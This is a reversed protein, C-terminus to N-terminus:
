GRAVHKCLTQTHKRLVLVLASLVHLDTQRLLSCVSCGMRMKGVAKNAFKRAFSRNDLFDLVWTAQEYPSGVLRSGAICMCSALTGCFAARRTYAKVVVLIIAFVEQSHENVFAAVCLM